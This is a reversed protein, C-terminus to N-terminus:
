ARYAPFYGSGDQVGSLACLRAYETPEHVLSGVRFDVVGNPAFSRKYRFIGDDTGHGGGLVFRRLGQAKAWQIIGDKLFDNPRLPFYEADTGGLFSYANTADHLVLESSVVRGALVAHFWTLNGSMATLADFFERRFYFDANAGTREMTAYYIRLFEDRHDGAPDAALELGSDAARRINKRVKHEYDRRIDELPPDLTRVVNHMAVRATGPFHAAYESYLGFRVFECVVRSARCHDAYEAALRAWNVDGDELFGGYGYPSAYDFWAGSEVVQALRPASAVDRRTVAQIARGGDDRYVLLLPTTDQGLCFARAYGSLYHVEYGPSSRVIADWEDAEDLSYAQIM